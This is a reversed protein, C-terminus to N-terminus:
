RPAVERRLKVMEPGAEGLRGRRYIVFGLGQYLALAPHNGAGCIVSFVAGGGRQVSEGVLAAAVGQRQHAAAVALAVISLQGPENDPGICIVGILAGDVIAGLFYQAGEAVSQVTPFTPPAPDGPLLAQEQVNGSALIPHISGAVEPDRHDIPEITM